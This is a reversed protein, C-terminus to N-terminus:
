KQATQIRKMFPQPKILGIIRAEKIERHKRDFFLLTPPAIVGFHAELTKASIDNKTVDARLLLFDKLANQIHTNNFLTHEM